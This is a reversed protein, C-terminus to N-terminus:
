LIMLPLFTLELADFQGSLRESYDTEPADPTLDRPLALRHAHVDNSIIWVDIRVRMEGATQLQDIELVDELLGIEDRNVNWKGLVRLVKNVFVCNGSHLITDADQIACAAANDVFAVQVVRQFAALNRASCEIDEFRLRIRFRRQQFQIIKDGRRM